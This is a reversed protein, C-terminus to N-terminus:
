RAAAVKDRLKQVHAQELRNVFDDLCGETGRQAQARRSRRERQEALSWRLREVLDVQMKHIDAAYDRYAEELEGRRQVLAESEKRVRDATACRERENENRAWTLNEISKTKQQVVAARNFSLEKEKLSNIWDRRRASEQQVQMARTMTAPTPSRAGEGGGEARVGRASQASSGCESRAAKSGGAATTTHESSTCPARNNTMNGAHLVTGEETPSDPQARRTSASSKRTYHFPARQMPALPNHIMAHSVHENSAATTTTTTVAERHISVDEKPGMRGGDAGTTASTDAFTRVRRGEARNPQTSGATCVSTARPPPTMSNRLGAAAGTAGYLRPKLAAAASASTTNAVAKESSNNDETADYEDQRQTQEPSTTARKGMAEEVGVFACSKTIRRFVCVRKQGLIGHRGASGDATNARDYRRRKLMSHRTIDRMAARFTGLTHQTHQVESAIHQRMEARGARRMEQQMARQNSRRQQVLACARYHDKTTIADYFGGHASANYRSNGHAAPKGKEGGSHKAQTNHAYKNNSNYNTTTTTTSTTTTTGLEHLINEYYMMPLDLAEGHLYRRRRQLLDCEFRKARRAQKARRQERSRQLARTRTWEFKLLENETGEADGCVPDPTCTSDSTIAAATRRQMPATNPRSLATESPVALVVAATRTTDM